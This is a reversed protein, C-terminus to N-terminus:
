ALGSVSFGGCQGDFLHREVNRFLPSTSPLVRAARIL